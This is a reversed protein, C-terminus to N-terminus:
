RPGEQSLVTRYIDQTEKQMRALTFCNEVRLRGQQGMQRMREPQSLLELLAHALATPDNPPVLLGTEGALVAEGVGDVDTAVVAKAAAMAELTVFPFSEYRSSLVFLDFTRLLAPVDTREGLFTLQDLGLDTKQTHLAAELPGGGVIQFQVDPRERTVLAAADLLTNHGKQPSLRGVTGIIPGIRTQPLGSPEAPEADFADLDIGNYVVATQEPCLNFSHLVHNRSSACVSILCDLKHLSLQELFRGRRTTTTERPPLHMTAVQKISPVLRAALMTYQGHLPNSLNLHLLDPKRSRFFATQALLGRLDTRGRIPNLRFVPVDLGALEEVLRAPAEPSVAVEPSFHQRNLGQLLRLLYQEAGGFVPAESIYLLKHM